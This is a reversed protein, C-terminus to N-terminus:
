KLYLIKRSQQYEGSALKVFYVGSTGSPSWTVEHRGPSANGEFLSEVKQGLTNFVALEIEGARQLEYEIAVSSNFPNPYTSLSFSRPVVVAPKVGITADGFAFLGGSEIMSEGRVAWGHLSDLFVLGLMATEVCFAVTDIGWTQGADHTSVADGAYSLFWGHSSDPFAAYRLLRRVQGASESWVFTWSLGGDTSRYIEELRTPTGWDCSVYFIDSTSSVIINMYPLNEDNLISWNFGGDVSRFYEGWGSGILITGVESTSPKGLWRGIEETDEQYTLQWTIGSDISVLIRLHSAGAERWTSTVILHSASLYDLEPDVMLTPMHRFEWNVGGDFTLAFLSDYMM